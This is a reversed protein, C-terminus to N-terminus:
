FKWGFSFEPLFSTNSGPLTVTRVNGSSDKLDATAPTSGTIFGGSLTLNMGWDFVWQYGALATMAGAPVNASHGGQSLKNNTGYFTLAFLWGDVFAEGELNYAVRVGLGGGENVVPPNETGESRYGIIAPGLQFGRGLNFEAAAEFTRALVLLTNTRLNIIGEARAPASLALASVVFTSALIVRAFNM